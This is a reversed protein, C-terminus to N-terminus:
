ASTRTRALAAGGVALGLAGVVIGVIALGTGDGDGEDGGAGPAPAATEGDTTEGDGDTTTEGEGHGDGGTAAVVAISPAPSDPEAGTGDWEAIWDNSGAECTQITKFFLTEGATDPATFNITFTDRVGDPLANGDAATFTIVSTRETIEEGHASVAPPSLTAKESEITWGAHAFPTANNVGEPIQVSVATTPSGDCGHGVTLGLAITSGAGVEDASTGVHAAASGGTVLVLALAGAGSAAIARGATRKMLKM